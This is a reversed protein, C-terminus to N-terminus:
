IGANSGSSGAGPAMRCPLSPRCIGACTTPMPLVSLIKVDIPLELGDSAVYDKAGPPIDIGGDHELRLIMPFKTPPQDSFYFGVSPQIAEPKGTPLLHLTLILDTDKDLRWTAGDPEFYPPTCPRWTLFRSDLEAGSSAFRSEMGTAGMDDVEGNANHLVQTRDTVIYCHHAIKPDGPHIEIGKVYHTGSIGTPLVFRPWSETNGGPLLIYPQPLQV